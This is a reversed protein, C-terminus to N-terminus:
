FRLPPVVRSAVDAGCEAGLGPLPGFEITKFQWGFGEVALAAKYGAGVDLNRIAWRSAEIPDPRTELLTAPEGPKVSVDFRDLGFTLGAGNAKIFAEKRSWCSFFAAYRQEAPLSALDTRERISFFRAAIGDVDIKERVCEVDVGIERGVALGILILHGSHSLNFRLGARNQTHSPYPKGFRNHQFRVAGPEIGLLHGLVIRVMAHRIIYRERDVQFRFREVKWREGTSLIEFLPLIQDRPWGLRGLWVHVDNPTIAYGKLAGALMDGMPPDRLRM